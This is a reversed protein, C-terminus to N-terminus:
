VVCVCGKAGICWAMWIESRPRVSQISTFLANYCIQRGSSQRSKNHLKIFKIWTFREGDYINWMITDSSILCFGSSYVSTSMGFEQPDCCKGMEAADGQLVIGWGSHYCWLELRTKQDSAKVEVCCHVIVWIMHLHLSSLALGQWTIHNTAPTTESSQGDKRITM